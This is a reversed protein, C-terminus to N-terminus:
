RINMFREGVARADVPTGPSSSTSSPPSGRFRAYMSRPPGPDPFVMRPSCKRVAFSSSVLRNTESSSDSVLRRSFAALTPTSM